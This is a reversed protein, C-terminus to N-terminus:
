PHTVTGPGTATSSGSPSTTSPQTVGTRPTSTTSATTGSTRTSQTKSTATSSTPTTQSGRTSAKGPTTLAQHSHGSTSQQPGSPSSSIVALAVGAALALVLIAAALWVTRGSRRPPAAVPISRSSRAAVPIPQRTPAHDTAGASAAAPAAPAPEALAAHLAPALDAARQPREEPRKALMRMVLADLAIPVGSRLERPPRPVATAHQNMVAAPLEGLFPPRGTLMEYLVCGLSYIDSREDASGGLAVEPALYPASGLVM